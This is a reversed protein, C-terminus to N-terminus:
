DDRGTGWQCLDRSALPVAEPRALCQSRHASRTRHVARVGDPPRAITIDGESATFPLWASGNDGPGKVSAFFPGRPLEGKLEVAFPSGPCEPLQVANAGPRLAAPVAVRGAPFRGIRLAYPRDAAGHFRADRIEVTFSGGEAFTHAFRSDFYLGPDNDREAVVRNRADRITVLPDADKGFRNGVAEFSIREGAKAEIRYRDIGGERFTGWVSAPLQLLLPKDDKAGPRVPLDDILFLCANSLGDRTAVRVGCVGVPALQSAEIEFVAQEERSEVVKAKLAGGPLSTWVGHANALERGVFTVRMTKGAEIVPPEIREVFPQGFAPAALLAFCCCTFRTM